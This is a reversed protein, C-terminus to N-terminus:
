PHGQHTSHKKENKELKVNNKILESSKSILVRIVITVYYSEMM